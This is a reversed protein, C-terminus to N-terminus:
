LSKEVEVVVEAQRELNRDAKLKELRARANSAKSQVRIKALKADISDNTLEDGIQVEARLNAAHNRVNELAKLDADVSLGDLQDQIMKRAKADSIQTIIKDKERKLKEIESRLSNLSNKAQNADKTANTLDENAEALGAELEEQQTLLVLAVDDDGENIAAELMPKLDALNTEFKRVRDEIRNRQAILGSAASKLTAYKEVMTNIANEYAVEPHKEELSKIGLGFAGFVLNWLRKLFRFM